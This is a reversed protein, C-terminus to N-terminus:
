LDEASHHAEQWHDEMTQDTIVYSRRWVPRLLKLLNSTRLATTNKRATGPGGDDTWHHGLEEEMDIQTTDSPLLSEARHDEEQSHDEM